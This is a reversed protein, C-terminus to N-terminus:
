LPELSISLEGKSWKLTVKFGRRMRGGRKWRMAGDPAQLALKVRRLSPRLRCIQPTERDLIHSLLSAVIRRVSTHSMPDSTEYAFYSGEDTFILFLM